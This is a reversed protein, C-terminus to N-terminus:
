KLILRCESIQEFVSNLINFNMVDEKSTNLEAVILNSWRALTSSDASLTM